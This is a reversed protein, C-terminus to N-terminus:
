FAYNVGLYGEFRDYQYIDISSTKDFYAGQVEVSWQNNFFHKLNLEAIFLEEERISLFFPHAKRHEIDKYHLKSSLLLTESIQYAGSVSVFWYDRGHHKGEESDSPQWARGIDAQILWHPHRFGTMAQLVYLQSDLLSDYSNNIVYAHGSLGSYWNQDWSYQVNTRLGVDQQYTKSDLSMLSFKPGVSLLWAGLVQDMSFDLNLTSRDYESVDQHIQTAADFHLSYSRYQNTHWRGNLQYEARAYSDPTELSEDTLLFTFSGIDIRDNITGSNVNGDHGIALTIQQKVYSDLAKDLQEVRAALRAVKRRLPGSEIQTELATLIQKAASYNKQKAYTLALLYQTPFHNPLVMLIRELAFTAEDYHGTELAAKVYLQDYSPEGAWDFFLSEAFRYAEPYQQSELLQTLNKLDGNDQALSSSTMFFYLCFIVGTIKGVSM